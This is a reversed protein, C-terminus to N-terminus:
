MGARNAMSNWVKCRETEGQDIEEIFSAGPTGQIDGTGGAEARFVIRKGSPHAPWAPHSISSTNTAKPKATAYFSTFYAIAEDSLRRQAPTLAHFEGTGNSLTRSGEYLIYNDSSHGASAPNAPDPEDWRYTHARPGYLNALLHTGCRFGAEGLGFAAMNEDTIGAEVYMAKLTNIDASTLGPYTAKVVAEFPTGGSTSDATTHGVIIDVGPIANLISAPNSKFLTNDIVPLWSWLPGTHQRKGDDAAQMLRVPDVTRLCELTHAIATSNTSCGVLSAVAKWQEKRAAPLTFPSRYWSQVVARRFLRDMPNASRATLHLSVAGAGASQGMISVNDPDGGFSRIHRQIFKLALRQDHIGANLVLEPDKGSYIGKDPKEPASLFGFISLRYYITVAIFPTPSRQVWNDFPWSRPNGTFYGGGHIYALVPLASTNTVGKPAYINVYLCDESGAGGTDNPSVWSSYGQICFPPYEQANTINHPRPTENLPLPARFRRPPRAYRVGLWSVVDPVTENLLGRYSAYGLDVVTNTANSAAAAALSSFLMVGVAFTTSPYRNLSRGPASSVNGLM